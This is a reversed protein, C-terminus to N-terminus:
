CDEGYVEDEDDETDDNLIADLISQHKENSEIESDKNNQYKDYADQMEVMYEEYEKIGQLILDRNEQLRKVSESENFVRDTMVEFEDITILNKKILLSVISTVAIDHAVAAISTNHANIADNLTGCDDDPILEIILDNFKETFNM